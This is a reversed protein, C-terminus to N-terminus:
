GWWYSLKLMIVDAASSSRSLRGLDLTGAGVNVTTVPTQARTYVLYATSGLRYEWRLVINVNLAAQSM